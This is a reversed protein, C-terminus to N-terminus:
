RRQTGAFRQALRLGAIHQDDFAGIRQGADINRIKQMLGAVLELIGTFVFLQQRKPDSLDLAACERLEDHGSKNERNM